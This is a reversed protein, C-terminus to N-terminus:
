RLLGVGKIKLNNGQISVEAGLIEEILWLNSEIHESPRPFVFDSEGDALAAYIIIQDATFRDVTAQSDLDELLSRAVDMGIREATRGIKGAMDAGIICGSDTKAWISLAAGRQRAKTDNIIKIEANLQRKNL